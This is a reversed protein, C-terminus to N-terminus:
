YLPSISVVTSTFFGGQKNQVVLISFKQKSAIKLGNQQQQRRQWRHAAALNAIAM